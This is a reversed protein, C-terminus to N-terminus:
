CVLDALDRGVHPGLGPRCLPGCGRHGRAPHQFVVTVMKQQLHHTMHHNIMPCETRVGPRSSIACRRTRPRGFSYQWDVLRGGRHRLKRFLAVTKLWSPQEILKRKRHSLRYGVHRTTRADIASGGVSNTRPWTRRSACAVSPPSGPAPTTRKTRRWRSAGPRLPLEGLLTIAADRRRNRQSPSPRTSSSATGIRPLCTASIGWSPRADARRKTCAPTRIPRRNIRITAARRAM